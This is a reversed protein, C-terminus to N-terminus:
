MCDRLTLSRVSEDFGQIGRLVKEAVSNFREQASLYMDKHEQFWQRNNNVVILDLFEVVEKM